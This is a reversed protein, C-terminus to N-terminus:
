KSIRRAKRGRASAVREEEARVEARAAAAASSFAMEAVEELRARLAELETRERTESREPFREPDLPFARRERVRRGARRRGDRREGEGSASNVGDGGGGNGEGGGRSAGGASATVRRDMLPGRVRGGRGGQQRPGGRRGRLISPEGRGAGGDGGRADGSRVDRAESRTKSARPQRVSCGRHEHEFGSERAASEASGRAGVRRRRGAAQAAAVDQLTALAETLRRELRADFDDLRRRTEDLESRMTTVVLEVDVNAADNRSSRAVQAGHAVVGGDPRRAGTPESRAGNSSSAGRSGDPM